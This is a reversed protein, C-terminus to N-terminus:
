GLSISGDAIKAVVEKLFCHEEELVRAALSSANDEELVSVKRIAIIEGSDYEENVRHITIGTEKEHNTIVAEHVHLGHMGKGGYKPLLGPHINFVRNHYAALVEDPLKKLYGALFIMDTDHEKLIRLTKEMMAEESGCSKSSVHYSDIKHNKGRELAYSSSNNSIVAVVKGDIQGSECGDIIAQLDSGNHSAFVSIRIM